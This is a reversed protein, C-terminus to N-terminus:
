MGSVTLRYDGEASFFGDVAVFSLGQPMSATLQSHLSSFSCFPNNDNCAVESAADCGGTRLYLVTDFTTIPSCTSFTVSRPGCLGLYYLTDAASGGGCTGTTDNGQGVTTGSYNGNAPIFTAGSCTSHQFRLAFNGWSAANWGDVIVYYTGPDLVRILQSRTGGSYTRCSDDACAVSAAGACTGQRLQIVSDWTNGDVTDLYVIERQTLTFTYWVDRGGAAAPTCTYTHDNAAMATSGSFVGGASIDIAGTCADNAPPPTASITVNLIFNGLSAAGAGDVIVWYTGAALNRLIRAQGPTGGASNDDCAIEAGPCTAGSRVHLVADYDSGITDLLVDAAMTLVLRYVVDPSAAGAGCTATYDGAAACTTGTFTGGGSIDPITGACTDNAPSEGFTCPLWTCTGSACSQTGTCSGATCTQTAGAVCDFGNDAGGVCDDDLGNCTEVPPTCADGTPLDCDLTCTGSGTSGCTTTCSTPTGRVCAFGNDPVTDCDDDAGNCVEAPPTCEAGTPIQCTSSCIGSGPTLCASRCTVRAGAPCPFGNDPVTDCDDDVGNCTEAPPTCESAAPLTCADTCTGAGWAGCTTVCPTPADQVCAFGNDAAGDCDDDTGNCSEPPALCGFVCNPECIVIGESGCPTACMGDYLILPDCEEHGAWVFGDGCVALLCTNLCGDTNDVNGDDCEEGPDTVGNGCTILRCDDTCEDDLEDCVECAEGPDVVCDGCWPRRCDRRCAGPETDSNDPGDDCEEGEEVVGNGCVSAGGTTCDPECGDGPVTNGDDCEEGFRDDRVGDGCWARLCNTRCANPLVNSNSEGDDCEEGPDIVGDGCSALVCTNRCADTDVDNGDDCGEGTDTVADGCYARRCDTRCADRRTDSNDNGDDCEEGPDVQGNGCNPLADSIDPQGEDERPGDCDECVDVGDGATTRGGCAGAALAAALVTSFLIMSFTTDYRNNM